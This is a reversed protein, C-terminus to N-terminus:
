GAILFLDEANVGCRIRSKDPHPELGCGALAQEVAAMAERAQDEDLCFLVYNDAFRVVRYGTLAADARSLRLNILTPALATGPVIPYPLPELVRCFHDLFTGDAVHEALWATVEDASSGASTQRVDLDAVWRYGDRLHRDADRLATIRNRGVRYGSVWDAFARAELVPEIANRMARQVVRDSVTPIVATFVKGTYATIEVERVPSPRWTGARLQEALERLRHPMGIRFQAWSMGDAGPAGGRRMCAHAARKLHKPEVLFSM